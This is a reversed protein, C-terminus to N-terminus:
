DHSNEFEEGTTKFNLIKLNQQYERQLYERIATRVAESRRAVVGARIVKQINEDDDEPIKFIINSKSLV